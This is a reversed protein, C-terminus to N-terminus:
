SRSRRTMTAYDEFQSIAMNQLDKSTFVDISLPVDQLNEARKRATVVIETLSSDSSADTAASAAALAPGSRMAAAGSLAAAVAIALQTRSIAPIGRPGRRLPSANSRAKKTRMMM